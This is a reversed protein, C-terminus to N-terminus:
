LEQMVPVPSRLARALAAPLSAAISVALAGALIVLATGTTRSLVSAPVDFIGMLLAAAGIVGAATGAVACTVARAIVHAAMASASTGIATLTALELRREVSDLHGAVGLTLGIVLALLATMFMRHHRLDTDIGGDALHGRAIELVEVDPLKARISEAVDSAREGPNLFVSVVSPSAEEDSTRLFVALDEASGSPPRTTTVKVRSVGLEAVTGATVSARRALEAGVDIGGTSSEAPQHRQAPVVAVCPVGNLASATLRNASISRIAAGGAAAIRKPSDPALPRFAELRVIEGVSTGPAAVYLAPAIQDMAEGVSVEQNVATIEVTAVIATAVAVTLTSVLLRSPRAKVERMALWISARIM